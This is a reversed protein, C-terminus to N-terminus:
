LSIAAWHGPASHTVFKFMVEGGRDLHAGIRRLDQAAHLNYDNLSLTDYLPEEYHLLPSPSSALRELLMPTSILFRRREQGRNRELQRVAISSLAMNIKKQVFNTPFAKLSLLGLTGRQVYDLSRIQGSQFSAIQCFHPCRRSHLPLLPRCFSACMVFWETLFSDRVTQELWRLAAECRHTRILLVLM